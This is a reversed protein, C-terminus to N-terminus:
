TNYYHSQFANEDLMVDFVPTCMIVQKMFNSCASSADIVDDDAPENIGGSVGEKGSTDDQNESDGADSVEGSCEPRPLGSGGVAPAVSGFSPSREHMERQTFLIVGFSM